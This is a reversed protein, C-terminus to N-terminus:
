NMNEEIAAEICQLGKRLGDSYEDKQNNFDKKLQRIDSKVHYLARVAKIAQQISEANISGIVKDCLTPDYHEDDNLVIDNLTLIEELTSIVKKYKIDVM